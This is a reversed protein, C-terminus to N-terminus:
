VVGAGRAGHHKGELMGGEYVGDGARFVLCGEGTAMGDTCAGSWSLPEYDRSGYNWVACPQNSAISWSAGSLVPLAATGPAAREPQAAARLLPAYIFALDGNRPFAARLWDRGRIEGTEWHNCPAEPRTRRDSPLGRGRLPKPAAPQLASFADVVM